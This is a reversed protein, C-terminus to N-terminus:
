TDMIPKMENLNGTLLKTKGDLLSDKPHSYVFFSFISKLDPLLTDVSLDQVTSMEKVITAAMNAMGEEELENFDYQPINPDYTFTADFEDTIKLEEKRSLLGFTEDALFKIKLYVQLREKFEKSNPYLVFPGGKGRMTSYFRELNDQVCPKNSLTGNTCFRKIVSTLRLTIEGDCIVLSRTTLLKLWLHRLKFM